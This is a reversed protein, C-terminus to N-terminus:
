LTNTYMEAWSTFNEVSFFVYTPDSSLCAGNVRGSLKLKQDKVLASM